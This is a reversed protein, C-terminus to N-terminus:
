EETSSSKPGHTLFEEFRAYLGKLAKLVFKQSKDLAKSDKDDIVTIAHIYQGIWDTYRSYQYTFGPLKAFFGMTVNDNSVIHMFEKLPALNTNKDVTVGAAVKKTQQKAAIDTDSKSRKITKKDPAEYNEGLMTAMQQVQDEPM